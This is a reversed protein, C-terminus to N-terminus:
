TRWVNPAPKMKRRGQGRNLQMPILFIGRTLAQTHNTQSANMTAIEKCEKGGISQTYWNFLAPAEDGAHLVGRPSLSASPHRAGMANWIRGFRWASAEQANWYRRGRQELRRGSWRQDEAVTAGVHAISRASLVRSVLTAWILASIDLFMSVVSGAKHMLKGDGSRGSLGLAGRLATAGTGQVTLTLGLVRSAVAIM